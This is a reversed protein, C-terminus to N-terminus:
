AVRRILGADFLRGAVEQPVQGATTGVLRPALRIAALYGADVEDDVSGEAAAAVRAGWTPRGTPPGPRRNLHRLYQASTMPIPNDRRMRRLAPTPKPLPTM